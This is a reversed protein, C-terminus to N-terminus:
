ASGRIPPPRSEVIRVDFTAADFVAYGPTPPLVAISRPATRADAALMRLLTRNAVFGAACQPNTALIPAKGEERLRRLIFDNRQEGDPGSFYRPLDPIFADLVAEM